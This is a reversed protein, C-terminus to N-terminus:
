SAAETIAVFAAPVRVALAERIEGRIAVRNYEFDTSDSNTMEVRVGGKEIITAAERFAGVLVTGSTILDSQVVNMGWLRYDGYGWPDVAYQASLSATILADFDSPNIVVADAALGSDTMVKTKAKLIDGIALSGGHAYTVSGIGSTSLVGTMNPATGNGSLLQTEEIRHLRMILRQNIASAMWAADEILEDSEKIIAAVKTLPVVVQTETFDIQPKQGDEAVTTVTGDKDTQRWFVYNNGSITQRSFLDAVGLRAKAEAVNTDYSYVTPKTITAPSGKWEPASVAFRNGKDAKGVMAAAAAEGLTSYNKEEVEPDEKSDLAAMIEAAKESREILAEKKEAEAILGEAQEIATEDGDAVADKLEVLQEKIGDLEDTLAM